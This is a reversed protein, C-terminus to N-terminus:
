RGLCLRHGRHRLNLLGAVVSSGLLQLFAHMGDMCLPWLPVRVENDLSLQMRRSHFGMHMVVRPAMLLTQRILLATAAVSTHTYEELDRQPCCEGGWLPKARGEAEQLWERAVEARAARLTLVM